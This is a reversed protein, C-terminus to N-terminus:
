IKLISNRLWGLERWGEYDGMEYDGMMGGEDRMMWCWGEVSRMMGRGEDKM